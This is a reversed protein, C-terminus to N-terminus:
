SPGVELMFSLASARDFLARSLALEISRPRKIWGLDIGKLDGDATAYTVRLKNGPSVAARQAGTDGQTAAWGLAHLHDEEGKLFDLSTKYGSSSVVIEVACYASAGPDCRKTQAIVTAGKVLPLAALDPTRGGASGGCAALGAATGLLALSTTLRATRVRMSAALAVASM